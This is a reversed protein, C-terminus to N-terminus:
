VFNVLKTFGSNPAVLNAALKVLAIGAIVEFTTVALHTLPHNRM